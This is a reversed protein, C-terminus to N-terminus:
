KNALQKVIEEVTLGQMLLDSIQTTLAAKAEREAKTAARAAEKAAEESALDFGIIAAVAERVMTAAGIDNTDCYERVKNDFDDSIQASLVAM